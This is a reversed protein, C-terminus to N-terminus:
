TIGEAAYEALVEPDKEAARLARLRSLGGLRALAWVAHSRVLPPFVTEGEQGGATADALRALRPVCERAQTNGAVICANRLLGALKTRKIPTKKFIEAFRAPSLNLVEILTLGAIEPRATLLVERSAQAF